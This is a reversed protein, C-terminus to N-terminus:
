TTYTGSSTFKIVTHNGDTTVTPSGTTTGSYKATEIRLIVVGSGGNGGTPHAFHCAGGGGGGTNVTGNFPPSTTGSPTGYQAGANGGGGQGGQGIYYPLNANFSGGGGGAYYTSVGTISSQIGDGGKGALSSDDNNGQNGV